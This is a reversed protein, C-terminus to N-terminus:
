GNKLALVTPPESSRSHFDQRLIVVEHGTLLDKRNESLWLWFEYEADTPAVTVYDIWHAEDDYGSTKMTLSRDANFKAWHPWYYTEKM